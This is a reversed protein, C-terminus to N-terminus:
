DSGCREGDGLMEYVCREGGGGITDYGRREAWFKDSVLDIGIHIPVGMIYDQFCFESCRLEEM